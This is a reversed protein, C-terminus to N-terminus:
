LLCFSIFVTILFSFSHKLQLSSSPPPPSHYYYPFYPVVPNPPPPTPGSPYSKYPPPYYYGTAGGPPSPPPPSNYYSGSSPPSPPPPCKITTSPPPPSPPPPSPSPPASLPPSPTNCPNDCASCMTCEIQYKSGVWTSNAAVLFESKSALLIMFVTLVSFKVILIKEM